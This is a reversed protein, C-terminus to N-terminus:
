RSTCCATTTSGAGYLDSTRDAAAAVSVSGCGTPAVQTLHIGWIDQKLLPTPPTTNTHIRNKPSDRERPLHLASAVPSAGFCVAAFGRDVPGQCSLLGNRPNQKQSRDAKTFDRLPPRAYILRSAAPRTKGPKRKQPTPTM